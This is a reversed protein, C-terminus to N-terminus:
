ALLFAINKFTTFSNIIINLLLLDMQVKGKVTLLNMACELFLNDRCHLSNTSKEPGTAPSATGLRQGPLGM